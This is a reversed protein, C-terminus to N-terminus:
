PKGGRTLEERMVQVAELNVQLSRAVEEAMAWDDGHVPKERLKEELDKVRADYEAQLRKMARQTEELEDSPAINTLENELENIRAVYDREKRAMEEQTAQLEEMNQRMEEEQSRMMETAAKSEELLKRNREAAKVSSFASAITEGLREVFTIEFDRYSNFSALEVVGHVEQDIKLPVILLAGPRTGGLGSTIQIYSEPLNTLYTTQKELFTQGLIGEGLKVRRTQYKKTDFAFLSIPELYKEADEDNLLYLGGQNSRTYQVLTSIIKDGLAQIDDGGARLIDVFKTLGENVWQRRREEENLTKLKEQMEILSDALKNKGPEYAPDLERYGIELNGGGIGQVFDSADRLQEIVENVQGGLDGIENGRLDETRNYQLTNHKIDGLPKIISRLFAFYAIVLLAIDLIIFVIMWGWLSRRASKRAQELDLIMKDYWSSISLWQSKLLQEVKHQDVNTDITIRLINQKFSNWHPLLEDYSIRSLSPLKGLFVTTGEMRGGDKIIKLRYDQEDVDAIIQAAFEKHGLLFQTTNHLLQQAALQARRSFNEHYHLGEVSNVKLRIILFQLILIVSLGTLIFAGQIKLSRDRFFKM